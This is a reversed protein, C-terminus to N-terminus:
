INVVKNTSNSDFGQRKFGFFTDEVYSRNISNLELVISYLIYLGLTIRAIEELLFFIFYFLKGWVVFYLVFLDLGMDVDDEFFFSDDEDDDFFFVSFMCFFSDVTYEEDTFDAFFIYYSDTIDDNMDYINLRIILTSLRLVSSFLNIVDRRFQNLVAAYTRGEALSPELVVLSHISSKFFSFVFTFLFFNFLYTHVLEIIEEQDDDFTFVMMSFYLFYLFFAKLAAEFQLRTEKSFSFLFYIIRTQHFEVYNDWGMIRFTHGILIVFWVFVMFMVMYETFEEIVSYLSDNYVDFVSSPLYSMVYSVWYSNSFDVLALVLEPNHHLITTFFDQYDTTFLFQFFFSNTNILSLLDWMIFDFLERSSNTSDTESFFLIDLFSMKTFSDLFFHTNVFFASTLFSFINYDLFFLDFTDDWSIVDELWFSDDNLYSELWKYEATYKM